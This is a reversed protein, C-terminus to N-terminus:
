IRWRWGPVIICRAERCEEVVEAAVDRRCRSGNVHLSVGEPAKAVFEAYSAAVSGAPAM